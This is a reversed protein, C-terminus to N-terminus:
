KPKYMSSRRTFEMNDIKKLKGAIDKLAEYWEM